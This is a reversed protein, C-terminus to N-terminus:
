WAHARCPAVHVDSPVTNGAVPPARKIASLGASPASGSARSTVSSGRVPLAAGLPGTTTAHTRYGVRRRQGYQTIGNRSGGGFFGQWALAVFAEWAPRRPGGRCRGKSWSLLPAPHVDPVQGHSVGITLVWVATM